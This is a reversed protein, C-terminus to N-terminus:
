KLNEKIFDPVYGIGTAKGTAEFYLKRLLNEVEERSYKKENEKLAQNYGAKFADYKSCNSNYYREESDISTTEKIGAYKKALAEINTEPNECEKGTDGCKLKDRNVCRHIFNLVKEEQIIIVENQPTLKPKNYREKTCGIGFMQSDKHSGNIIPLDANCGDCQNLEMELLLEKIQEGKNYKDAYIPLFSDPILPLSLSKDTTAIIIHPYTGITHENSQYVKNDLGIFYKKDLENIKGDSTIHLHQYSDGMNECATGYHKRQHLYNKAIILDSFKKTPLMVIPHLKTQKM